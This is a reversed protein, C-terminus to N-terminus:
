SLTSGRSSVHSLWLLGQPLGDLTTPDFTQVRWCFEVPSAFAYDPALHLGLAVAAAAPSALDSDSRVLVLLPVGDAALEMARRITEIADSMRHQDVESSPHKKLVLAIGDARRLYRTRNAWLKGGPPETAGGLMACLLTERGDVVLGLSSGIDQSGPFTGTRVLPCSAESLHYLSYFVRRISGFVAVLRFPGEPIPPVAPASGTIRSFWGGSWSTSAPWPLRRPMVTDTVGDLSRKPPAGSAAARSAAHNESFLRKWSPAPSTRQISRPWRQRQVLAQWVADDDCLARWERCVRSATCVDRASTLCSMIEVKVETPLGWSFPSDPQAFKTSEERSRRPPTPDPRPRPLSRPVGATGGHIKLVALIVISLLVFVISVIVDFM